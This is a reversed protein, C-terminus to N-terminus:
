RSAAAARVADARRSAPGVRRVDGALDDEDVAAAHASRCAEGGLRHVRLAVAGQAHDDGVDGGAARGRDRGVHTAHRLGLRDGDGDDAHVQGVAIQQARRQAETLRHVGSQLGIRRVAGVVRVAPQEPLIHVGDSRDTRQAVHPSRGTEAIRALDGVGLVEAAGASLPPTCRLEPTGLWAYARSTSPPDYLPCFM